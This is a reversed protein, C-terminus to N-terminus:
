GTLYRCCTSSSGSSVGGEGVGGTGGFGSGRTAVLDPAMLDRTTGGEAVAAAVMGLPVGGNQADREHVGRALCEPPLCVLGSLNVPMTVGWRRERLCTVAVGPVTDGEDEM